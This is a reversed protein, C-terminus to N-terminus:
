AEVPRVRSAALKARQRAEDVTAAGALAVGM